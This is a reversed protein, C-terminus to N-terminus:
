KIQMEMLRKKEAEDVEKIAQQRYKKNKAYCDINFVVGLEALLFIASAGGYSIFPLSVGTTPFWGVVVMINLITQIAIQAFVGICFIRGEIDCATKEVKVLQVLLYGFLFFLLWSGFVGLEECIIALIYDNYPEALKFKVISQGLGKGWFGGAGIAYLAQMPQVSTTSMYDEPHLFARIRTIRFNEKPSYPIVVEILFVGFLVIAVIGLFALIYWMPKDDSAFLIIYCVGMVIIATSLNDSILVILLAIAVALVFATVRARMNRVGYRSVYMAFFVMLLLKVPEAAQFRIPGFQLWRVAGLAGYGLPTVLLLILIFSTFLGIWGLKIWVHYDIRSALWLGGFGIMVYTFQSKLFHYTPLKLNAASYYSASYMMILGFINLFVIALLLNYNLPGKTWFDLRIKKLIKRISAM